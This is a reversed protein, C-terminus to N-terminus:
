HSHKPKVTVQGVMGAEYHGPEFCAMGWTGASKFTWNLVAAQGPEVSVANDMHHHHGKPADRMSKAHEALEKKKGIVLEHRVKGSNTVVLRLSEGETAEWQEPDFRLTDDMNIAVTRVVTGANAVHAPALGMASAILGIGAYKRLTSLHQLQFNM